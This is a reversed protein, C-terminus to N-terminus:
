IMGEESNKPSFRPLYAPALVVEEEEKGRVRTEWLLKEKQKM